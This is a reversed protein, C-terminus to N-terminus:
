CYVFSSPSVRVGENTTWSTWIAVATKALSGVSHTQGDDHWELSLFYRHEKIICFESSSLILTLMLRYAIYTTPKVYKGMAQIVFGGRKGSAAIMSKAEIEMM